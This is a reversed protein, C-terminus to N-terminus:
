SKSNKINQVVDSNNIGTAWAKWNLKEEYLKRSSKKLEELKEPSKMLEIIKNAYGAGDDEYDFLFGNVGDTIAGGVGGTNTALSPIGFGSAECFVIGFCDTRTPVILFDTEYFLNMFQERQEINNKNLFPIVHIKKNNIEYPPVCGCIVLEVDINNKLLHNFANLAIDGGKLEWNVGLFLLRISNNKPPNSPAKAVPTAPLNDFNAGLPIIKIKEPNAKYDKIASAKAWESPYAIFNARDIARQEILMGQKISSKTLGTFRPNYDLMRAFTTDSLYIVPLKTELFALESSAGCAFILDYKKNKLKESFYKGYAKSLTTSHTYDYKKKLLIRTLLSKVRGINFAWFPRYPGLFDVDGVYEQLATSSYFPTGSWTRKDKADGATLFAISIRTM